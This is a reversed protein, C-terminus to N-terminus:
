RCPAPKSSRCAPCQFWTGAEISGCQAVMPTSQRGGALYCRTVTGRAHGCAKHGAPGQQVPADFPRGSRPVHPLPPLHFSGKWPLGVALPDARHGSAFCWDCAVLLLWLSQGVTRCLAPRRRASDDERVLSGRTDRAERDIVVPSTTGARSRCGLHSGALIHLHCSSMMLRSPTTDLSCRWQVSAM